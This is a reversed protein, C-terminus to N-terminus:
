QCIAQCVRHVSASWQLITVYKWIRTNDNYKVILRPGDQQSRHVTHKVARRRVQHFFNDEDIIKGIKTLEM